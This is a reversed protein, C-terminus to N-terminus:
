TFGRNFILLVNQKGKFQSLSVNNGEYDALAFDPAPANLAVQAM